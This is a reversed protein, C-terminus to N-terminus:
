GGACKELFGTPPIVGLGGIGATVPEGTVGVLVEAFPHFSQM